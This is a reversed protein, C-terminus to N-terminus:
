LARSQYPEKDLYVLTESSVLETRLHFLGGYSTDQQPDKNTNQTGLRYKEITPNFSM